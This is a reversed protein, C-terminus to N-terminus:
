RPMRLSDCAAAYTEELQLPVSFDVDLWLPMVPLPSGVALPEPWAELQHRGSVLLMRYAVAYLNGLPQKPGVVTLGLEQEVQTYLTASRETVVDVLVVSIGRTLYSACKLAFAHRNSPRDKNAPSILEVTARLQPGGQRRIVQVEFVDLDTFDVMESWAPRPPTWVATATGGEAAPRPEDRQLTAVDIEIQSGRKILPLAYYNPPLIGHNLHSAIANAWASHIGEWPWDDSLPPRFHDRLPMARFRRKRRFFRFDNYATL